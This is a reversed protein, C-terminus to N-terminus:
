PVLFDLYFSSIYIMLFNNTIFLCCLKFSKCFKGTPCKENTETSWKARTKAYLVVNGDNQLVLNDPPPDFTAWENYVTNSEWSIKGDTKGVALNGNSQFQFVDVDSSKTNSSWLLKNRCLLELNGSEKLIFKYVGSESEIFDGKNLTGHTHCVNDYCSALSLM